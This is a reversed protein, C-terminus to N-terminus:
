KGKTREEGELEEGRRERIWVSIYFKLHIFIKGHHKNDEMIDTFM